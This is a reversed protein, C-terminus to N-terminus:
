KVNTCHTLWRQKLEDYHDKIYESYPITASFVAGEHNTPEQVPVMYDGFQKSLIEDYRTPVPVTTNEFKMKSQGSNWYERNWITRPSGYTCATVSVYKEDSDEYASVTKEYYKFLKDMSLLGIKFLPLVTYYAIARIKTTGLTGIGAHYRSYSNMFLQITRLKKIMKKQLEKKAPFVDLPIIDIFIGRNCNTAFDRYPIETTNSNRLRSFTKPYGIDTSPNQFFFPDRFAGNYAVKKLNEYDKRPVAVDIDDDWPIFGKHRIAGLLTGGVAYYTINNESCVRDFECLLELLKEFLQKKSEEIEYQASQM